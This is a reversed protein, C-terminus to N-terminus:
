VNNNETPDESSTTTEDNAEESINEDEEYHAVYEEITQEPIISIAKSKLERKIINLKKRDVMKKLIKFLDKDDIELISVSSEDNEISLGISKIISKILECTSNDLIQKYKDSIYSILLELDRVDIYPRDNKFAYDVQIVAM